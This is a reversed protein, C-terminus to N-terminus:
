GRSLLLHLPFCNPLSLRARRTAPWLKEIQFDRKMNKENFSGRAILHTSCKSSRDSQLNYFHRIVVNYM